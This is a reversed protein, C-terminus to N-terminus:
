RSGRDTVPVLPGDNTLLALYQEVRDVSLGQVFEVPGRRDDPDRSSANYIFDLTASALVPGLLTAPMRLEALLEALRVNLDSFATAFIGTNWHGALVDSSRRDMFSLCLCGLRPESQVGWAQLRRLLSSDSSGLWLLETPSLFADLRSRDHAVVWSLLTRRVPSLRIQDAVAAAEGSTRVAAVKERGTRIASAIADRDADTLLAPDVLAVTETLVRRDEDSVTPRRAPPRTSVRLLSFEALRVDLGLLSGSVHWGRVSDGGAAPLWWPDTSRLSGARFGFDHRRAAVSASIAAREPQGLAVAYTLELLGRAQLDDALQLLPPALRPAQSMDGDQALRSLTVATERYRRGADSKEWGAASSGDTAEWGVDQAARQLVSTEKRLADRTLGPKSMVAAVDVLARAASLFPRPDDGLMRTLRKWEAAALDVRYRTGEWDVVRAESTTSSPGALLGLVQREVPGSEDEFNDTAPEASAALWEAMWQVLRGDYDAREGVDVASLTTVLQAVSQSPLSRRVAVRTVLALTGQFQTMTRTARGDDAITALRAARRAAAAFASVDALRARELGAVLAPYVLAARVADLADLVTDRRIEKIIRSAFFVTQYRRRQEIPGGRFVQDCLWAADVPEGAVIGDVNVQRSSKARGHKENAFVASWFQRTGPVSPRGGADTAIEALFLTPDVIPRWFTREDVKWGRALREFVARLRRAASIRDAQDAAALNFASGLQAPMLQAMAGFFSALRGDDQDLLARVFDAPQKARRGVLAEWVPEAVDGGPVRVADGAIRLGPAALVFAAAHRSAIDAILERQGSLWARTEDDLSLLGYYLLSANRSRLILGVLTERTARGEFVVNIWIDATLPLPLTEAPAAVLSATRASQDLHALLSELSADRQPNKVVIPTHYTRRIFELLFQSRDASVRDDVAGLAVRVSGPLPVEDVTGTVRADQAAASGAVVTFSVAAGIVGAYFAPRRGARVARLM